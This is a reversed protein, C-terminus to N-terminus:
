KRKIFYILLGLGAGLVAVVIAAGIIIETQATQQPEQYPTSTPTATPSPTPTQSEGITITQTNSWDSTEDYAVAPAFHGGITPYFPHEIVWRQSEHGVLAQVQFDVQGGAPIASLFASYMGEQGEGGSYYRQIDYGSASYLETPVVPFTIVTFSSKSQPPSDDNIYQAYSFTGDGNYSSTMNRIPYIETWNDAFRPKTRINYYIQNNSYDFLQNKVTVQISNNSIQQTENVGTYPNTTAVSYSANVFKVTFEPVSPKPIGSVDTAAQVTCFHKTGALAFGCVMLATLFAVLLSKRMANGM